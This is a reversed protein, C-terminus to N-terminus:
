CIKFLKLTSETFIVKCLGWAGISISNLSTLTLTSLRLHFGFAEIGTISVKDIAM